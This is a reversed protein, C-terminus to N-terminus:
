AASRAIMMNAIFGYSEDLLASLQRRLASSICAAHLQVPVHVAAACPCRQKVYGLTRLKCTNNELLVRSASFGM